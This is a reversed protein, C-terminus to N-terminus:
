AFFEFQVRELEDGGAADQLALAYEHACVSGGAFSHNALKCYRTRQSRSLANQIRGDDERAAFSHCFQSASRLYVVGM